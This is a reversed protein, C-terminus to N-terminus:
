SEALRTWTQRKNGAEDVALIPYGYGYTSSSCNQSTTGGGTGVAGGYYTHAVNNDAHTVQVTRGLADYGPTEVGNSSGRCIYCHFQRISILLERANYERPGINGLPGVVAVGIDSERVYGFAGERHKIHRILNALDQSLRAVSVQPRFEPERRGDAAVLIRTGELGRDQSGIEVAYCLEGGLGRVVHSLYLTQSIDARFYVQVLRLKLYVNVALSGGIQANLNGIHSVGHPQHDRARILDRGVLFLDLLEVHGHLQEGCLLSVGRNQCSQHDWRRFYSLHTEVTNGADLPAGARQPNIAEVAAM